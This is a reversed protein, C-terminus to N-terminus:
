TSILCVSCKPFILSIICYTYHTREGTAVSVQDSELGVRGNASRNLVKSIERCVHGGDILVMV